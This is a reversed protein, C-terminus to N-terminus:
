PCREGIGASAGVPALRGGVWTGSGGPSAVRFALDHRQAFALAKHQVVGGGVRRAEDWTACSLAAMGPCHKPDAPFIGDVDKVLRVESAGMVHGLFLATLDSGGRGLLSVAGTVDRGTFGPLVVADHSRLSAALAEADVDVPDADKLTGRTHIPLRWSPLGVAPVGATVLAITLLAVSAEEGTAVLASLLSDPPSSTIARASALLADTTAGMASVVVVVKAGGAVEERVEEAASRYDSPNALISGGFKLVHINLHIDAAALVDRPPLCNPSAVVRHVTARFGNSM